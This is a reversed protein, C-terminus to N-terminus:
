NEEYYKIIYLIFWLHKFLLLKLEALFDNFTM